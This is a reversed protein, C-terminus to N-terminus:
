SETSDQYSFTCCGTIKRATVKLLIFEVTGHASQRFFFPHGFFPVGRLNRALFSIRRMKLEARCVNVAIHGEKARFRLPTGKKRNTNFQVRKTMSNYGKKASFMYGKTLWGLQANSFVNRPVKKM